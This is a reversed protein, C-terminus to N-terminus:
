CLLAAAKYTDHQPVSLSQTQSLDCDTGSSSFDAVCDSETESSGFQKQQRFRSGTQVQVPCVLTSVRSAEHMWSWRPAAAVLTAAIERECIM